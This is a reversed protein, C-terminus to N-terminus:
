IKIDVRKNWGRNFIQGVKHEEGKIKIKIYRVYSLFIEM